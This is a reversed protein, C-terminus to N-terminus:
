SANMDSDRIRDLANGMSSHRNKFNTSLKVPSHTSIDKSLLLPKIAASVKWTHFSCNGMIGTIRDTTLNKKNIRPRLSTRLPPSPPNEIVQKTVLKKLLRYLGSKSTNEHIEEIKISILKSIMLHCDTQIRRSIEALYAPHFRYMKQM